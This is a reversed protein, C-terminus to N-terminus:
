NSERNIAWLSAFGDELQRKYYTYVYPSIKDPMNVELNM